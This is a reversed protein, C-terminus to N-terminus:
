AARQNQLYQQMFDYAAAKMEDELQLRKIKYFFPLVSPASSRRTFIANQFERSRLLCESASCKGALADTWVKEARKILDELADAADKQRFYERWSWSLAPTAPAVTLTLATMHMDLALGYGVLVALLVFSVGLVIAAYTRRLRSDYSLNSRQCVLRALHLPMTGVEVPYWHTLGAASADRSARRTDEPNPPDGVAFHDWPMELVVCDFKESFRAARRLVHKHKRDVFAVDLVIIVLALAAVYPRADSYFVAIGAGTAALVVSLTVQLLALHM